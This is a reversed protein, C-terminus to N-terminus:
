AMRKFYGVPHNRTGELAFLAGQPDSCRVIWSGVPLEIPGDLVQGGGVRVREAATYIDGVRFYYLWMSGPVIPPKPFMGGITEGGVSFTQYANVPDIDADAKQWGFLQNYFAFAKECDLTLLEHWCVHGTKGLEIPQQQAPQMGKFLALMAMQPDSVISFRSINPIDQPPVQVAGGLQKFRQAAADVDDVGVYGIWRPRAGMKKADKPLAMVGTVSAKGATFLSYAMGPMSVDQAGWGMVKAYFTKAAAMDTTMLEYWIFRGRFNVM